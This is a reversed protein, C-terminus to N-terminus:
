CVLPIELPMKINIAIFKKTSATTKQKGDIHITRQCPEIHLRSTLVSGRWMPDVHSSPPTAFSARGWGEGGGRVPALRLGCVHLMHAYM